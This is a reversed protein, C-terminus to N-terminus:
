ARDGAGRAIASRRAEIESPPEAGLPLGDSIEYWPIKAEVHLHQSQGWSADKTLPWDEPHDLSGILIWAHPNGDYLFVIPSGCEACFGRRGFSSSRYYKPKGQTYRLTSGSFKLAAQFFGYNKQCMRCHCYSGFIPPEQAEYRVAGCLCGGTIPVHHSSM